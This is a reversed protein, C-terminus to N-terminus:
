CFSDSLCKNEEKNKTFINGWSHSGFIVEANSIKVAAYYKSAVESLSIEGTRRGFGDGITFTPLQDFGDWSDISIDEIDGCEVGMVILETDGIKKRGVLKNAAEVLKEDMHSLIKKHEAVTTILTFSTSSSNSIFGDRTKM